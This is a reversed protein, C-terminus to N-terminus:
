CLLLVRPDLLSSTTEPLRSGSTEREASVPAPILLVQWSQFWSEAHVQTVGKKLNSAADRTGYLSRRLLGVHTSNRGGDDEEALEVANSRVVPAEFYASDIDNVMVAHDEEEEEM